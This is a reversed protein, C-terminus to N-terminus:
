QAKPLPPQLPLFPARRAHRARQDHADHLPRLRLAGGEPNEVWVILELNIGGPAFEKLFVAPEPNALIQQRKKAADLMIGM